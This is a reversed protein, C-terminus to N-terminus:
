RTQGIPLTNRKWRSNSFHRRSSTGQNSDTSYGAEVSCSTSAVPGFKYCYENTRQGRINLDLLTLSSVGDRIDRRFKRTKVEAQSERNQAQAETADFTTLGVVVMMVYVGWKQIAQIPKPVTM